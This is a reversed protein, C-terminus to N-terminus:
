GADEDREYVVAQEAHGALVFGIPNQQEEALHALIGASRALL